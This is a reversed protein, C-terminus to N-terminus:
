RGKYEYQATKYNLIVQKTKKWLCVIYFEEGHQPEHQLDNLLQKAGNSYIVVRNYANYSRYGFSRLQCFSTVTAKTVTFGGRRINKATTIALFAQVVLLLLDMFFLLGGMVTLYIILFGGRHVESLSVFFVLACLPSLLLCLLVLVVHHKVRFSLDKKIHENTLREKEVTVARRKQKITDNYCNLRIKALLLLLFSFALTRKKSIM